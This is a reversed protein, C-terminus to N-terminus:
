IGRKDGYNRDLSILYELTYPIKNYSENGISERNAYFNAAIIKIAHHVISNSECDDTLRYNLHREVSLQAVELLQLIYADDETFSEELNLHKKIDKLSVIM